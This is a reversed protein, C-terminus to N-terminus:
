NIITFCVGFFRLFVGNVPSRQSMIMFITSKKREGFIIIETQNVNVM